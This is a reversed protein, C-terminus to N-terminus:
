VTSCIHYVSFLKENLALLLACSLVHACIHILFLSRTTFSLISLQILSQSLSKQLSHTAAKYLLLFPISLCLSPTYCLTHSPTIFISPSLHHWDQTFSSHTIQGKMTTTLGLPWIGNHQRVMSLCCYNSLCHSPTFM